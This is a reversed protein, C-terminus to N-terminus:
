TNTQSTYLLCFENVEGEWVILIDDVYRIWKKIRREKDIVKLIKIEFNNMFIEAMLPSLPSGMPLGNERDRICM